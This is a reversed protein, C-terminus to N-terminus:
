CAREEDVNAGIQAGIVQSDIKGSIRLVRTAKREAKCRSSRSSDQKSHFTYKGDFWWINMLASVGYFYGDLALGPRRTRM